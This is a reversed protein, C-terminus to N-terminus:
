VRQVSERRLGVSGFLKVFVAIMTLTPIYGSSESLLRNDPDSLLQCPIGDRTTAPAEPPM